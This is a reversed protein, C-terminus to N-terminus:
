LLESRNFSLEKFEVEDNDCFISFMYNKKSVFLNKETIESLKINKFNIQFGLGKLKSYAEKKVWTEIRKLNDKEKNLYKEAIEDSIDRNTEEIDIGVEYTSIVCAVYNKSHSYNFFINSDKFYPKGNPTTYIEPLKLNFYDLMKRLVIRAQITELRNSTYDVTIDKKNVISYYVIRGEKM